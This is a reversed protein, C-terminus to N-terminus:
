LDFRRTVRTDQDRTPARLAAEGMEKLSMKPHYCEIFTDLNKETENTASHLTTNTKRIFKGSLGKLQFHIKLNDWLVVMRGFLIVSESPEIEMLLKMSLERFEEFPIEVFKGDQWGYGQTFNKPCLNDVENRLFHPGM